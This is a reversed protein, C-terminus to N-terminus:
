HNRRLGRGDFRYNLPAWGYRLVTQGLGGPTVTFDRCSPTAMDPRSPGCVRYTGAPMFMVLGFQDRHVREPFATSASRRWRIKVAMRDRDNAWDTSGGEECLALDM